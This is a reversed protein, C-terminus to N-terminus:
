NSDRPLRSQQDDDQDRHQEVASARATRLHRRPLTVQVAQTDASEEYPGDDTASFPNLPPGDNKTGVIAKIAPVLRRPVLMFELDLARALEMLTSLRLDDGQEARSVTGQTLGLEHALESQSMKRDSRAKRLMEGINSYGVIM